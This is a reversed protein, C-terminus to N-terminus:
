FASKMAMLLSIGRPGLPSRSVHDAVGHVDHANCGTLNLIGAALRRVPGLASLSTRFSERAFLSGFDGSGRCTCSPSFSGNLQRAAAAKMM